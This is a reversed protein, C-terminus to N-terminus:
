IGLKVKVSSGELQNCQMKNAMLMDTQQISFAAAKDSHRAGLASSATKHCALHSSRIRIERESEASLPWITARMAALVRL